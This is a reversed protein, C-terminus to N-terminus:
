LFSKAVLAYSKRSIFSELSQDYNMFKVLENIPYDKWGLNLFGRYAMEGPYGIFFVIVIKVMSISKEQYRQFYVKEGINQTFSVQDTLNGLSCQTM